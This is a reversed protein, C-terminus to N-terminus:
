KCSPFKLAIKTSKLRSLRNLFSFSENRLYDTGGDSHDPIAAQLPLRTMSCSKRVRRSSGSRRRDIACVQSSTGKKRNRAAGTRCSAFPSSRAPRTMGPRGVKECKPRGPAELSPFRVTQRNNAPPDTDGRQEQLGRRVAMADGVCASKWGHSKFRIRGSDIAAACATSPAGKM